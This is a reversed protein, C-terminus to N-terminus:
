GEMLIGETDTGPDDEMLIISDDDTVADEMLIFGSLVAGSAGSFRPPWCEFDPDRNFHQYGLM